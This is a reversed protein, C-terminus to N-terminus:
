PLTAFPPKKGSPPLQAAAAASEDLLWHLHGRTPCLQAAPLPSAPSPDHSGFIQQLAPGKSSGTVLFLAYACRNLVPLTLSIRTHPAQPAKGVTVLAKREALAPTGPFLSATHGDPGMGMLLLDFRPRASPGLQFVTRLEQEYRHAVLEPAGQEAPIRHAIFQSLHSLLLTYCVGYNSQPDDPPVCREDVWWLHIDPWPLRQRWVDDALLRFLARPTSGGSLGIHAVGRRRIARQTVTAIIQATIQPIDSALHISYPPTSFM